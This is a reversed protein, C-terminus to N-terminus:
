AYVEAAFLQESITAQRGGSDELGELLMAPQSCGLTKTLNAILGKGVGDDIHNLVNRVKSLLAPTLDNATTHKIHGGTDNSMSKLIDYNSACKVTEKLSASTPTYGMHRLIHKWTRMFSTSSATFEELCVQLCYSSKHCALSNNLMSSMDSLSRLAEARVGQGRAMRNLFESYTERKEVRARNVHDKHIFAWARGPVHLWSESSNLHYLYASAVLAVPDRVFHVVPGAFEDPLEGHGFFAINNWELGSLNGEPLTTNPQLCHEGVTRALVTGTKHYTVFRSTEGRVEAGRRQLMPGHNQIPLVVLPQTNSFGHVGEAAFAALAVPFFSVM